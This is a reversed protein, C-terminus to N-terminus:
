QGKEIRVPPGWDLFNSGCASREVIELDQPQLGEPAIGREKTAADRYGSLSLPRVLKWHPM